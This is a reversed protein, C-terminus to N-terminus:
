DTIGLIRGMNRGLVRDLGDNNLLGPYMWRVRRIRQLEFGANNFPFDSGFILRESGLIKLAEIVTATETFSTELFVNANKMAVMLGQEALHPLRGWSAGGSHLMLITAQPVACALEDIHIPLGHKLLGFESFGSHIAVPVKLEAAKKVLSHIQPDNPYFGQSVPDLKLGRLGLIKIARELEVVSPAGDNPNVNAFGILRQPYKRVVEAVFDNTDKKFPVGCVIAKNIGDADMGAILTEPRMDFRLLETGEYADIIGEATIHVHSDIIM